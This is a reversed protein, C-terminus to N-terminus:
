KIIRGRRSRIWNILGRNDASEWWSPVPVNGYMPTGHAQLMKSDGQIPMPFGDDTHHPLNYKKISISPIPTALANYMAMPDIGQDQMGQGMMSPDANPDMQSPDGMMSPDMPQQMMSPDQTSPDQQLVTQDPPIESTPPQSGKQSGKPPKLPKKPSAKTSPKATAM